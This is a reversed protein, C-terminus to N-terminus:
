LEHANKEKRMVWGYHLFRQQKFGELKSVFDYHLKFELITVKSKINDYLISCKQNSDMTESNTKQKFNM